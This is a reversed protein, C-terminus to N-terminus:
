VILIIMISKLFQINIVILNSKNTDIKNLKKNNVLDIINDFNKIDFQNLERYRDFKYKQKDLSNFYFMENLINKRSSILIYTANAQEKETLINVFHYNILLLEFLSKGAGMIVNCIGTTFGNEIISALAKRQWDRLNKIEDIKYKYIKNTKVTKNVKINCINTVIFKLIDEDFYSFENNLIDYFKEGQKLKKFEAEIIDFIKNIWKTKKHKLKNILTESINEYETCIDDYTITNDDLVEILNFLMSKTKKIRILTAKNMKFLYFYVMIIIMNNIM